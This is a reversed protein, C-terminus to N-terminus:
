FGLGATAMLSTQFPEAPTNLARAANFYAVSMGVEAIVEFGLPLPLKYRMSAGAEPGATANGGADPAGFSFGPVDGGTQLEAFGASVIPEFWGWPTDFAWTKLRARFHAIEPAPSQFLFGSGNGCAEVGLGTHWPVGGVVLTGELPTVEACAQL